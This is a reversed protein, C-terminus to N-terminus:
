RRVVQYRGGEGVVDVLSTSGDPAVALHVDPGLATSRRRRGTCRRAWRRPWGGGRGAALRAWGAGTLTVLAM